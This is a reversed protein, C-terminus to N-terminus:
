SAPLQRPRWSRDGTSLTRLFESQTNRLYCREAATVSFGTYGGLSPEFLVIDADLLSQDSHFSVYEFEDGSLDFGAAFIRKAM